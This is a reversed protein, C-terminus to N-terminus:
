CPQANVTFNDSCSFVIFSDKSYLPLSFLSQNTSLAHIDAKKCYYNDPLLYENLGLNDLNQKNNNQITCGNTYFLLKGKNNSVSIMTRVMPFQTNPIEIDPPITNFNLIFNSNDPSVYYKGQLWQYDYKQANVNSFILLQM